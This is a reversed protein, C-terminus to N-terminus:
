LNESELKRLIVGEFWSLRMDNTTGYNVHTKNTRKLIFEGVVWCPTHNLADESYELTFYRPMRSALVLAVYKSAADFYDYNPFTIFFVVTGKKTRDLIIDFDSVTVEKDIDKVILDNNNRLNARLANWKEFLYKRMENPGKELIVNFSDWKAFVDYYMEVNSLQYQISTSIKRENNDM